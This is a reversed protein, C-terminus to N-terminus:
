VSAETFAVFNQHYDLLSIINDQATKLGVKIWCQSSQHWNM